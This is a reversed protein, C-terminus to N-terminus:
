ILRVSEAIDSSMKHLSQSQAAIEETTAAITSVKENINEMEEVLKKIVDICLQMRPLTEDAQANNKTILNRTEAALSGIQGAVVAFGRGSEGARAAEISANLSLMNTQGAIGTIDASTAKYVDIFELIVKLSENLQNCRDSVESISKSMDNAEGASTENAQSLESISMSLSDFREVIDAIMSDKREQKEREEQRLSDIEDRENEAVSKIYHICNEKSNIGNYIAKVMEKCSDFGCCGCDICQEATTTKNMDKFIKSQEAASPTKMEIKKETYNRIFDNLDLEKFQECLAKYREAPGANKTWSSIKTGKFRSRKVERKANKRQNSIEDYVKQEDIDPQTGTGFLCGSGCNLIDIMVPGNARLKYDNLFKYAEHEGEVQRISVDDGLFWKVNEKLGGPMPYLSGLGYQLEDNYEDATKYADGIHEMFNKFTINYSILNECNADNIESKKAICPSLFAIKDRSGEYKRLYKAMCMVPSYVPVLSDILETRYREIYSVVAPCPSSIMGKKGTKELYRLYGWTCIDAGYSVSYIHSVGLKKIYGLIKKYENPYNAIFAPAIVVTIKTGEKLDEFFMDTDDTYVRAEHSCVDICKGCDICADTEVDVKGTEVARNSPFVPCNRICKNCGTCLDNTNIYSMDIRWREWKFKDQLMVGRQIKEIRIKLKGEFHKNM